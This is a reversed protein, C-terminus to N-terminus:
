TFASFPAARHCCAGRTHGGFYLTLAGSIPWVRKDVPEAAEGVKARFDEWSIRGDGDTDFRAIIDTALEAGQTGGHGLAHNADGLSIFGDGDVDCAEFHSRIQKDELYKLFALDLSEPIQSRIGSPPTSQRLPRATTAHQHRRIAPNLISSRLVTAHCCTSDRFRTKSGQCAPRINRLLRAM